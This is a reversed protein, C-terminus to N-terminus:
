PARENLKKESSFTASQHFSCGSRLPIGDSRRRTLDADIVIGNCNKVKQSYHM